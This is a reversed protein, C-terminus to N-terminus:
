AYPAIHVITGQAKSSPVSTEVQVPMKELAHIKRVIALISTGQPTRSISTVQGVEVPPEALNFIKSGVAPDASSVENALTPLDIRVLRRAPSGLAIIKEIVEQGPYCGKNDAIGERLGIELPIANQTIESDIKPRVAQVRWQNLIADDLIVSSPLSTLWEELQATTSWASIWTRGFDLNGHNCLRIDAGKFNMAKTHFAELGSDDWFLWVTSLADGGVATIDTVTINEAFTFQDITTLLEKTWKGASDGSGADLEFAYEDQALNWLTFFVRIKGMPTLFFGNAGEGVQLARVHVTTLRHLFDQTDPGKISVWSRNLSHSFPFYLQAM